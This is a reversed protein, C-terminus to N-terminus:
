NSKKAPTKSKGSQVMKDDVLIAVRVVLSEKDDGKAKADKSAPKKASTDKLRGFIVEITQGAHLENVNSKFFGTHKPEKLKALEAGVVKKPKGDDGTTEPPIKTMVHLDDALTLEETKSYRGSRIELQLESSKTDIKKLKGVISGSEIYKKEAPKSEPKADPKAPPAKDDKKMEGKKDTENPKKPDDDAALVPLVVFVAFLPIWRSLRLM